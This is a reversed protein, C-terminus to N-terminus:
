PMYGSLINIFHPTIGWFIYLILLILSWLLVGCVVGNLFMKGPTMRDREWEKEYEKQDEENMKIEETNPISDVECSWLEVKENQRKSFFQGIKRWGSSFLVRKQAINSSLVTCIAYDYDLDRLTQAQTNKLTHSLGLGRKQPNVYFGHCIAVQCQSPLSDIEFAGDQNAFRM